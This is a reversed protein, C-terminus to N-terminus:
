TIIKTTLADIIQVTSNGTAETMVYVQGIIKQLMAAGAALLIIAYGVGILDSYVQIPSSHQSEKGFM